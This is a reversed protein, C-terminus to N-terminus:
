HVLAFAVLNMYFCVGHGDRVNNPVQYFGCYISSILDCAEVRPHLARLSLGDHKFSLPLPFLYLYSIVDHSDHTGFKSKYNCDNFKGANQALIHTSFFFAVSGASISSSSPSSPSSSSLDM